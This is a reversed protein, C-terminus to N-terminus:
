KNDRKDKKEGDPRKFWPNQGNRHQQWQHQTGGKVMQRHFQDEALMLKFMKEAPVVKCIRKYYSAEVEAMEVQLRKIKNLADLYEKDTEYKKTKLEHIKASITRLEKRMEKYLPIFAQSEAPTFGAARTINMLMDQQFKEPDFRPQEKNQKSQERQPWVHSQQPQAVLSLPLLTFIITTLITRQTM